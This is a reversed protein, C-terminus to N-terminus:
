DRYIGHQEIYKKVREPLLYGTSVGAQILARVHTASIELQTTQLRGIWGAATDALRQPERVFRAQVISELVDPLVWDWGPRDLVLIHSQELIEQWRYWSPLTVFSDVGMITILPLTGIESRISCLTDFTYSPGGRTIERDDVVLQACSQVALEVMALRHEANSRTQERHPPVFAPILRVAALNLAQQVELASQLHGIHVPDFTGGFVAIGKSM